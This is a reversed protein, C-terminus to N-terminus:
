IAGGLLCSLRRFSFCRGCPPSRTAPSKAPIPPTSRPSCVAPCWESSRQSTSSDACRTRRWRNGSTGSKPSTRARLDSGFTSRTAAPNGHWSRLWAPLVAPMLPAFDPSIPSTKRSTSLAFGVHSRRSFTGKMSCSSLPSAIFYRVWSSSFRPNLQAYRTTSM